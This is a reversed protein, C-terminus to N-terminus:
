IEWLEERRLMTVDSCHMKEKKVEKQQEESVLGRSM